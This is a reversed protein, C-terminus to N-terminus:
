GWYLTHQGLKLNVPVAGLDFGTFVFADLLEGSPGRNWRRTFGTYRNDPYASSIDGLGPVLFNSNATIEADSRYAHDYWLAASVRLGSRKRYVMDLETLLDLRNTVIDGRKFKSDSNDYTSNNLINQDQAQMRVGLNYRVSNDWRLALEPNGTDIPSAYASCTGAGATLLVCDIVARIAAQSGRRGSERSTTRLDMVRRNRYQRGGPGLVKLCIWWTQCSGAVGNCGGSPRRATEKTTSATPPARYSGM